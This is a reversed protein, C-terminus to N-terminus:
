KENNTMSAPRLHTADTALRRRCAEM